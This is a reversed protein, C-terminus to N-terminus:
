IKGDGPVWRLINATARGKRYRKEMAAFAVVTENRPVFKAREIRNCTNVHIGLEEAMVKQTVGFEERFDLWRKAFRVQEERKWRVKYVMQTKTGAYGIWGIRSRM